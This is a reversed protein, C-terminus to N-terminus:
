PVSILFFDHCGSVKEMDCIYDNELVNLNNERLIVDDLWIKGQEGARGM